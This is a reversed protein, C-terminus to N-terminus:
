PVTVSTVNSIASMHDNEGFCYVAFYVTQGSPLDDIDLSQSTNPDGELDQAVPNALWGARSDASWTFEATIPLTSWVVHFRAVDNPTTWSIRASGSGNGSVLLNGISGPANPTIPYNINRVTMRAMWEGSWSELDGYEASGGNIGDDLYDALRTLYDARGYRRGFWAVPDGLTAATGSSGQLPEDDVPNRFYGFGSFTHNWDVIGWIVQFANAEIEPDHGRVETDMQIVARSLYGIQFAAEDLGTYNGWAGYRDDRGDLVTIALRKRAAELIGDNGTVRYASMQSAISHGESRSNAWSDVGLASWNPRGEMSREGSRFEGIFEYWDRVWPNASLFYFEEVHYFWAHATDWPRWGGFDTGAIHESDLPLSPENGTFHARWSFGAYPDATPHIRDFDDEFKYEAIWQPRCNLMGWVHAEVSLWDEVKSSAYVVSASSPVGGTGATYKRGTDAKFNMWGYNYRENSEDVRDDDYDLRKSDSGTIPDVSPFVGDLDLSVATSEYVHLPVFPTPHHHFNRALDDLQSTPVDAGHFYFLVEKVVHQMDELWYLGTSNIEGDHFQASWKPWLRVQMADEGDVEIGNPWMEAMHRIAVFMGRNEDSLDAWGYTTLSGENNTVALATDDSSRRVAADFLSSQVLYRGSEPDGEWTTGPRTTLRLTPDSLEPQVHLSVDEFYLPASFRVNKASNQLQYDVKVTSRGAYAYFRVAFGHEHDDAANYITLGSVRVVARMPGSEEVVVRLDDRDAAKQIDGDLRGTFVPGDSDSVIRESGSYSGDGNSDLWVEDFLTFENSDITFKLVGTDVTVVGDSEDVSVADEPPPSGGSTQVTYVTEGDPPTTAQFQVTIHRISEDRAWWRNLVDFQAPVAQGDAGVLRFGTTNQHEGYHLPVVATVPFDFSGRGSVDKVTLAVGDIVAGGDADQQTVDVHTAYSTGDVVLEVRGWDHVGDEDVMTTVTITQPQDWTGVEFILTGGATVELVDGGAVRTTVIVTEEPLRDLRVTFTGSQGEEIVLSSKDTILGIVDPLTPIPVSGSPGGGGGGSGGSCATLSLCVAAAAVFNFIKNSSM